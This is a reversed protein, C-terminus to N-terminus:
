HPREIALLTIGEPCHGRKVESYTSDSRFDGIIQYIVGKFKAYDGEPLSDKAAVAKKLKRELDAVKLELDRIKEDKPDPGSAEVKTEKENAM